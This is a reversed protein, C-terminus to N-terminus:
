YLDPYFYSGIEHTSNKIEQIDDTSLINKWLYLLDKSSRPQYLHNNAVAPNSDSTYNCIYRVIDKDFPADIFAFIERFTELPNLAAEEHYVFHWAPFTNQYERILFHFINWLLCGQEIFNSDKHLIEKVQKKFPYLRQNMLEKQVSFNEFNTKWGVKM